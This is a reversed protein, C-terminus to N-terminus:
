GHAFWEWLDHAREGSLRRRRARGPRQLRALRLRRHKRARTARQRDAPAAARAPVGASFVHQAKLERYNDAVFADTADHAVARAAFGPGLSRAVAVWDPRAAIADGNATTEPLSPAPATIADSTTTAFSQQTTTQESMTMSGKM